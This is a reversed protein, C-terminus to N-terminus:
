KVYLSTVYSEVTEYSHIKIKKWLLSTVYSEFTEYSHFKKNERNVQLMHYIQKM